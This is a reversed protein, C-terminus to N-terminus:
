ELEFLKKIHEVMIAASLKDIYFMDVSHEQEISICLRNDSDVVTITGDVYMNSYDGDKFVLSGDKEIEITIAM